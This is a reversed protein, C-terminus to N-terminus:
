AAGENPPKFVTPEYGLQNTERLPRCDLWRVARPKMMGGSRKAKRGAERCEDLLVGRAPQLGDLSRHQPAGSAENAASGGDDYGGGTLGSWPSLEGRWLM